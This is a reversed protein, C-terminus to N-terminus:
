TVARQATRRAAYIGLNVLFASTATASMLWVPLEYTKVLYVISHLHESVFSGEYPTVGARQLFWNEVLTLPCPIGGPIFLDPLTIAVGYFLSILHLRAAWPRHKTLAAGLVVWVIFAVHLLMVLDALLLYLTRTAV